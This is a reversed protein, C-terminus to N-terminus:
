KPKLLEKALEDPDGAQDPLWFAQMASTSLDEFLFVAVPLM